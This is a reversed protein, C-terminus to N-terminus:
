SELACMNTRTDSHTVSMFEVNDGGRGDSTVSTNKYNKCSLSKKFRVNKIMNKEM